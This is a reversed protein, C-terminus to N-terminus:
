CVKAIIESTKLALYEKKDHEIKEGSMASFFVTCGMLDLQSCSTGVSVVLGRPFVSVMDESVLIGSQVEQKEQEVLVRDGVVQIM